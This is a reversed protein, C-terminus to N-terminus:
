AQKKSKLFSFISAANKDSSATAARGTLSRALRRLRRKRYADAVLTLLPGRCDIGVVASRAPEAQRLKGARARRLDRFRVGSMRTALECYTEAVVRASESGGPEYWSGIALCM